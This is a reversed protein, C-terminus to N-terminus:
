ERYSFGGKILWFFSCLRGKRHEVGLNRRAIKKGKKGAPGEFGELTDSIKYESM